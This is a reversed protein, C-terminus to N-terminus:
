FEDCTIFSVQSIIKMKYIILCPSILHSGWPWLSIKTSMVILYSELLSELYIRSFQSSQGLLHIEFDQM